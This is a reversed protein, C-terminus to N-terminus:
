QCRGQRTKAVQHNQSEMYLKDAMIGPYIPPYDSAIIYSENRADLRQYLYIRKYKLSNLHYLAPQRRQNQAFYSM